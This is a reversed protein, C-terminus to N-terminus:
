IDDTTPTGECFSSSKKQAELREYYERTSIRLIVSALSKLNERAAERKAKSASPMYRDIIADGAQWSEGHANFEPHPVEKPKASM